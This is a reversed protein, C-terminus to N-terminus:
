FTGVMSRCVRMNVTNQLALFCQLVQSIRYMCVTPLASDSCQQKLNRKQKGENGFGQIRFGLCQITTQM